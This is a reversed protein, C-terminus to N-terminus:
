MDDKFVSADQRKGRQFSKLLDAGVQSTRKGPGFVASGNSEKRPSISFVIGSSTKKSNMAEDM